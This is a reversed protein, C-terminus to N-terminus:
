RALERLTERAIRSYLSSPVERLLREYYAAAETPKSSLRALFYLADDRYLSESDPYDALLKFYSRATITDGKALSLRAQLAFVDDSIPHGKWQKELTDCLQVAAGTHGQREALLAMAFLRLPEILTDPKLNDLILWYLEIADNALEDQTNNKLLRLRTKALEFEGQFFSLEALKYYATSLWASEPLRSEVELLHLRAQIPDGLYLAAESLLFYKQALLGATPPQVTDLLSLVARPKGTRLLWRAKEILLTPTPGQLRILSDVQVLAQTPRSFAAELALYRPIAKEHAPCPGQLRLLEQYAKFATELAGALESALGVEYLGSCNGTQKVLARGYRLAEAYDEALIYFRMLMEQYPVPPTVGQYLRLLPIELSDLPIKEQFRYRHATTLLSDTSLRGGQWAVLWESWAQVFLQGGELSSILPEAYASPQGSWRRAEYLFRREWVFDAWVRSAVEALDEYLQPSAQSVKLLSAWRQFGANTDGQALLLRGEWARTWVESAWRGKSHQTLWRHAEPLKQNRVLCELAYSGWLKDGEAQYLRQFIAYAREYDGMRFLTVAESPEWQAWLLGGLVLYLVKPRM